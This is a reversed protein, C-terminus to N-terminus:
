ATELPGDRGARARSLMGALAAAFGVVLLIIGTMLSYALGIVGLLVRWTSEGSEALDGLVVEREESDLLLATTEVVSWSASSM